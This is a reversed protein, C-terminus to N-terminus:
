WVITRYHWIGKWMGSEFM